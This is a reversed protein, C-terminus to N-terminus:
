MLWELFKKVPNEKPMEPEPEEVKPPQPAPIETKSKPTPETGKIAQLLEDVWAPREEKTKKKSAHKPKPPTMPEPDEDIEMEEIEEPEGEKEAFLQLFKEPIRPNFTELKFGEKLYLFM